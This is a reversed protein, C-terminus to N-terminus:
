HSQEDCVKPMEADHPAQWVITSVAKCAGGRVLTIRAHYWRANGLVELIVRERRAIERETGYLFILMSFEPSWSNWLRRDLSDLLGSFQTSVSRDTAQGIELLKVAVPKSKEYSHQQQAISVQYMGLIMAVSILIM